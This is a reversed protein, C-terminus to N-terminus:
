ARKAPFSIVNISDLHPSKTSEITPFMSSVKSIVKYWNPDTSLVESYRKNSIIKTFLEINMSTVQDSIYRAKEQLTYNPQIRSELDMFYSQLLLWINTIFIDWGIAISDILNYISAFFAKGSDGNAQKSYDLTDKFSNYISLYESLYQMQEASLWEFTHAKMISPEEIKLVVAERTEQVANPITVESIERHYFSLRHPLDTYKLGFNKNGTMDQIINEFDVFLSADYPYQYDQTDQYFEQFYVELKKLWIQIREWVATDVINRSPLTELYEQLVLRFVWLLDFGTDSYKVTSQGRVKWTITCRFSDLLQHLQLVWNNCITDYLTSIKTYVLKESISVTDPAWSRVRNQM